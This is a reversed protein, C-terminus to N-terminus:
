FRKRLLRARKYSEKKRVKLSYIKNRMSINELTFFIVLTALIYQSLLLIPDLRWGHIIIIGSYILNLTILFIDNKGTKQPEAIQIIYFFSGGVTMLIGLIVNPTLGINIM